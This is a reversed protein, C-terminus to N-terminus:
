EGSDGQEAADRGRAPKSAAATKRAATKKAAPAAKPEGDSQKGNDADSDEADSRNGPGHGDEWASPATILAALHEAPEEGPQLVLRRGSNPDTVHVARALKAM